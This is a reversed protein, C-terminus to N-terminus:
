TNRLHMAVRYPFAVDPTSRAKLLSVAIFWTIKQPKYISVLVSRCTKELILPYEQNRSHSRMVDVLNKNQLALGPYISPIKTTRPGANPGPLDVPVRRGLGRVRGATESSSRLLRFDESERGLHDRSMNSCAGSVCGLYESRIGLEKKRASTISSSSRGRNIAM